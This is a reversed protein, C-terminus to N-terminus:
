RTLWRWARRAITPGHVELNPCVSALESRVEELDRNIWAVVPVTQTETKLAVCTDQGMRFTHLRLAKVDKPDIDIVRSFNRIALRSRSIAVYPRRGITEVVGVVIAISSAEFMFPIDNAGLLMLLAWGGGLAVILVPFYNLALRMRKGLGLGTHSM